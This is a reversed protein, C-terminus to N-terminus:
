SRADVLRAGMDLLQNMHVLDVLTRAGMKKMVNSRHIKISVESLCLQDAMHKNMLGTVVLGFVQRERRTLTAYRDSVQALAAAHRRRAQDEALAQSVAAVIDESQDLATLFDIAGAKMARVAMQVDSCPGLYIVPLANQRLALQRLLLAVGDDGAQPPVILCGAREPIWAEWLQDHTRLSCVTLGARMLLLRLMNCVDSGQRIVYVVGDVQGAVPELGANDVSALEMM